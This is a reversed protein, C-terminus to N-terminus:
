YIPIAFSGTKGSGTEALGVVDRGGISEPISAKQIETPAKWGLQDIAECLTAVVGLSAFTAPESEEGM